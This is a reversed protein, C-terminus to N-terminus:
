KVILKGTQQLSGCKLTYYYIGAKYNRIDLVFQGQQQMIDVTHIIRGLNDTIEVTGQTESLPLTYDFAVWTDAPNPESSIELGRAKAMDGMDITSSKLQINEPLDPCNCYDYGYAFELIGQASTKASGTGYEALDIVSALETESLEFITRGQQVLSMVLQKLSKYDNYEQLNDGSLEYLAPLIDLLSQASSYDSELIYTDIIQKDAELGGINDLWNRLEEMDPEDENVISRIVAQAAAIKQAHYAAMESLLVTKYSTGNALQWLIDIMYQPLPQEKNELYAMLEEERLEDPNASLIEFLVSEPLVDTKDAAAMLVEKSLHPSKGLLEERLEWMDTPGSSEVEAELAETNGGDLLNNYLTEVNNYDNDSQLYETELQLKESDSLVMGGDIPSQGGYHSPCSNTNDIAVPVVTRSHNSLVQDPEDQDYFYIISETYDNQFQVQANPSLTNGSSHDWYGMYGGVISEDAVYFDYNNDTNQNCLYTVGTEDSLPNSRNEDEAQIGVSLGDFENFYIVDSFSPCATLRIGIYNGPPTGQAKSFYNEEITFGISNSIDIGYTATNDGCQQEDGDDTEGIYFENFILTANDVEDLIIGNSNDIFEANNVTLTYSGASLLNIGKTFNAFSNKLISEEPCPTLQEGCMAYVSFGAHYANIGHGSPEATLNNVFASGMIHIGYVDFMYIHTDWWDNGMLYDGNVEFLSNEIFSLNPMENGEGNYPHSNHYPRFNIATQNNIFAASPEEPNEIFQAQIIGGAKTDDISGAENTAALLVGIVANEIKAGNKLILTGQVCEDEITFQHEDPNGWVEIGQWTQGCPATCTAGDITLKGGPEIIIKSNEGCVITGGAFSIDAGSEIIFDGAFYLNQTYTYDFDVYHDELFYFIPQANPADFLFIEKEDSYSSEGYSNTAKISFYYPTCSQLGDIQFSTNNGANIPSDGQTLGTGSYPPGSDTDYYIYYNEAPSNLFYLNASTGSSHLYHLDPQNPEKNIRIEGGAEHWVGDNDKGSIIFTGQIQGVSNRIFQLEDPLEPAIPDWESIHTPFPNFPEDSDIYIYDGETSSLTMKLNWEVILDNGPPMDIFEAKYYLEDNEFFEHDAEVILIYDEDGSSPVIVGYFLTYASQYEDSIEVSTQYSSPVWDGPIIGSVTVEKTEDVYYLTFTSPSINIWDWIENPDYVELTFDNGNEHFALNTITITFSLEDNNHLPELNVEYPTHYFQSKM